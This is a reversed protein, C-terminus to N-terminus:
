KLLDDERIIKTKGGVSNEFVSFYHPSIYKILEKENECSVKFVKVELPKSVNKNLSKIKDYYKNKDLTICNLTLFIGTILLNMNTKIFISVVYLVLFIVGLVLCWVKNVKLVKSRAIGSKVCVSAVIRGGDLPYIPLLNFILVAINCILFDYTYLYSLPFIWWLCITILILIVNVLPGCLSIIIDHEEIFSSNTTIVAGSLAYIM